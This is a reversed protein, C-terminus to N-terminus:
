LPMPIRGALASNVDVRSRPISQSVRDRTDMPNSPPAIRIPARETQPENGASLNRDRPLRKEVDTPGVVGTPMPRQETLLLPSRASGADAVFPQDAHWEATRDMRDVPLARMPDNPSVRPWNLHQATPQGILSEDFDLPTEPAVTAGGLSDATPTEAVHDVTPELTKTKALDAGNEAQISPSSSRNPSLLSLSLLTLAIASSWAIGQLYPLRSRRRDASLIERIRTELAKPEAMAVAVATARWARSFPHSLALLNEAYETPLVGASLVIDDCAAERELRLRDSAWHISPHFWYFAGVWRVLLQWNGDARRVHGLEHLLVSRMREPSWELASSPLLLQSRWVGWTMPICDRESVLVAVDREIGLEGRIGDCISVIPHDSPLRVSQGATRALLRSALFSRGLHYVFGLVWIAAAVALLGSLLGPLDFGPQSSLTASHNAELLSNADLWAPLGGVKPTILTLLPLLASGVLAAAWVNHRAAPSRERMQKVIWGAFILLMTSKIASLAVINWWHYSWDFILYQM